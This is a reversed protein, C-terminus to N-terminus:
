NSVASFNNIVDIIYELEKSPYELNVSITTASKLLREANICKMKYRSLIPYDYLPKIKYKEMDSSVGNSVMYKALFPSFDRTKIVLKQYSPNSNEIVDLEAVNSNRISSTIFDSNKKRLSLNNHINNMAEIGALAQFHSLKYNVGFDIGNLEGMRSYLLARYYYEENDTLLFGGEGTSFIKNKQTSYCAIDCFSSLSKNDLTAGACHALDCILPIKAANSYSRMEDAPTVYGWMPVEIIAKTKVPVNKSMKDLNLGFNNLRVDCFVPIAGTSIIPYATCLPATPPLIVKDGANIGIAKLAVMISATGSSLALCYKAGFYNKLLTEYQGIIKNEYGEECSRFIASNKTM